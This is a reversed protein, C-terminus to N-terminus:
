LSKKQNGTVSIGVWVPSSMYGWEPGYVILLFSCQSLPCKIEKDKKTLCILFSSLQSYKKPLWATPDEMFVQQKM